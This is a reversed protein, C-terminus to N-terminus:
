RGPPGRSGSGVPGNVPLGDTMGPENQGLLIGSISPGTASLLTSVEHAPSRVLWIRVAARAAPSEAVFEHCSTKGIEDSEPIRCGQSRHSIMRVARFDVPIAFSTHTSGDGFVSWVRCHILDRM